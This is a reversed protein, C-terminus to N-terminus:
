NTRVKNERRKEGKNTRSEGEGQLCVLLFLRKRDGVLWCLVRMGLLISLVDVADM